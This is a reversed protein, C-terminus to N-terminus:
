VSSSIKMRSPIKMSIQQNENCPIEEDQARIIEHNALTAIIRTSFENLFSHTKFKKFPFNELFEDFNKM